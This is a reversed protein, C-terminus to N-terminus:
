KESIGQRVLVPSEDVLFAVWADDRTLLTWEEPALPRTRPISLDFTQEVGYEEALLYGALVNVVEQLAGVGADAPLEDEDAGLINEALEDCFAVPAVVELDGDAAGGTYEIRAALAPAPALADPDVDADVFMFAFGEFVSTLADLLRANHQASM